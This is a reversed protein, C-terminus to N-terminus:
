KSEALAKVWGTHRERALVECRARMLVVFAYYIKFALAMLLLPILMSIDISPKGFKAVTPGQHLTNWWEVSYHIIPINVVGVLTLIAVARGATRKDDIANHLAIVGLYLFLLILESTLRADWVWWTGWMPKGWISGTVLALFTFSAGITASSITIVEALKIQWILGIAGAGAMVMYIFLSMWAAPVHIFMIRYSDGQQYDPPAKVLGYYLGALALLLFAMALWPILHGAITYFYKPSALKHFFNNFM